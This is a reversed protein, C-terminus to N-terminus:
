VQGGMGECVCVETFEEARMGMCEDVYGGCVDGRECM